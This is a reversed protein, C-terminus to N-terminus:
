VGAAYEIEAESLSTDFDAWNPGIEVDARLGFISQFFQYLNQRASCSYTFKTCSGSFSYLDKNGRVPRM